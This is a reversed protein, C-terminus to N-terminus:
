SFASPPLACDAAAAIATSLAPSAQTAPLVEDASKGSTFGRWFVSAARGSQFLASLPFVQVGEVIQGERQRLHHRDVRGRGGREVFGGRIEPTKLLTSPPAVHVLRM